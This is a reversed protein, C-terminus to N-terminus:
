GSVSALDEGQAWTLGRGHLLITKSKSYVSSKLLCFMLTILMIIVSFGSCLVTGGVSILQLRALVWFLTLCNFISSYIHKM